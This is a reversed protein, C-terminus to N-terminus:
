GDCEEEEQQESHLERKFETTITKEEGDRFKYDRVVKKILLHGDIRVSVKQKFSLVGSFYPIKIEEAM